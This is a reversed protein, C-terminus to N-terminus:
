MINKNERKRKRERNNKVLSFLPCCLQRLPQVLITTLIDSSKFKIAKFLLLTPKQDLYLIHVNSIYV